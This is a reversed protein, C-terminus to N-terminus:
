GPILLEPVRPDTLDAVVWHAGAERLEPAGHGGTQVALCEGGVGLAAHADKPTDGIIIIRCDDFPTSLASAGREAGARILEVRDVSDNGYGGFDFHRWLGGRSLKTRAGAEFNGTGLGVAVDPRGTVRDLVREVGPMITYGASAPVERALQRLYADALAQLRAETPEEGIALLGGRLILWDTMGRFDMADLADGRECVEAFAHRMSRRGAGGTRLLTGDIDFLLVTPTMPM